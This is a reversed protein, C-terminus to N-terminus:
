INVPLIFILLCGFILKCIIFYDFKEHYINGTFIYGEASNDKPTPFRGKSVINQIGKSHATITDSYRQTQKNELQASTAKINGTFIRIYSDM